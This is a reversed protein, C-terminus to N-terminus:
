RSALPHLEQLALRETELDAEIRRLEATAPSPSASEGVAAAYRMLTAEAAAIADLRDGVAAVIEARRTELTTSRELPVEGTLYADEDPRRPRSIPVMPRGGGLDALRQAELALVFIEAVVREVRETIESFHPISRYADAGALLGRHARMALRAWRLPEGQLKRSVRWFDFAVDPRDHLARALLRPLRASAVALGFTAAGALQLPAPTGAFRDVISGWGLGVALTFLGGWLITAGRPLAPPRTLPLALLSGFLLHGLMPSRGEFLAYLMGGVAGLPLAEPHREGEARGVITALLAGFLVSAVMSSLGFFHGVVSTALFAVIGGVLGNRLLPGEERALTFFRRMRRSWKDM